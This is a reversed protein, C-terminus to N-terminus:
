GNAAKRVVLLERHENTTIGRSTTNAELFGSVVQYHRDVDFEEPLPASKLFFVLSEVDRYVYPVDYTRRDLVEFGQSKLTACVTDMDQRELGRSKEYTRWQEGLSGWGFADYINQTSRDGVQQSIYLGQPRLVRGIETVYTPAHRNARMLQLAVNVVAQDRLNKQATAIM